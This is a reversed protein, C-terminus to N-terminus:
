QKNLNDPDIVIVSDDLKVWQNVIVEIQILPDPDPTPDPDPDVPPDVPEEPDVPPDVPDEPDFPLEYPIDYGLGYIDNIRLKYINNRVIAYEM